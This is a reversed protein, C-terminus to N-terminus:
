STITFHNVVTAIWPGGADNYYCRQFTYNFMLIHIVRRGIANIVTKSYNQRDTFDVDLERSYYGLLSVEILTECRKGLAVRCDKIDMDYIYYWFLNKDTVPILERQETTLLDVRKKLMDIVLEDVLGNLQEYDKAALAQSITTIAHLSGATFEELNFTNDIATRFKYTCVIRNLFSHMTPLKYLPINMLPPLYTFKDMTSSFPRYYTRDDRNILGACNINTFRKIVKRNIRNMSNILITAFERTQFRVACKKFILSFM